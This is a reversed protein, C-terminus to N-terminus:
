LQGQFYHDRGESLQLCM